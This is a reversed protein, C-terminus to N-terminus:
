YEYVRMIEQGFRNYARTKITAEHHYEEFKKSDFITSQTFVIQDKPNLLTQYSNEPIVLIYPQNFKATLFEPTQVSYTDLVLYTKDKLSRQNLYDSVVTLDSRYAYYFEPSNASIGFYLHYDYLLNTILFLALFLSILLSINRSKFSSEFKRLFIDIAVAAFLFVVPITGIARLGHPISEVTLLEPALMGLFWMIMFFYVFWNQLYDKKFFTKKFLNLIIILVSYLIGLAFFFSIWPNLMSHGSVNHRWNLDGDTFFMFFTKKAVQLVTGILDGHNQDKNFVSVYGARGAFDFPHHIFYSLLPVLILLMILFGIVMETRYKKLIERNILLIVIFLAGIIPIILRFAPYTYFGLALSIGALIAYIKRKRESSEKFVSYAFYFFLVSFLPVM